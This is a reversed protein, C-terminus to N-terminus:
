KISFTIFADLGGSKDVTAAPKRKRKKKIPPAIDLVNTQNVSHPTTPTEPGDDTKSQLFQAYLGSHTDTPPCSVFRKPSPSSPSSTVPSKPKNAIINCAKKDSKKDDLYDECIVSSQIFPPELITTTIHVFDERFQKLTLDGGFKQLRIRPPAPKVPKHINFVTRCMQNFYLLRTTSLMVEYEILSAKACNVSCYIGYVYYINKLEDYRRVNPVPITDFGECCHLCSVKTHSPWKTIKPNGFAPHYFRIANQELKERVYTMCDVTVPTINEDEELLVDANSIFLETTKSM